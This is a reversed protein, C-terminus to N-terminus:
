SVKSTRTYSNAGLAKETRAIRERIELDDSAAVNCCSRSNEKKEGNEKLKFFLARKRHIGGTLDTNRESFLKAPQM